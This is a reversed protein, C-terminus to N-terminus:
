NTDQSSKPKPLRGEKRLADRILYEMQGNVSRLEEAAWKKLANIIAPDMRVLFADRKAM